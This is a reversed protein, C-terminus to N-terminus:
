INWLYDQNIDVLSTNKKYIIKQSYQYRKKSLSQSVIIDFTLLVVGSSYTHRLLAGYLSEFMLNSSPIYLICFMVPEDFTLHTSFM